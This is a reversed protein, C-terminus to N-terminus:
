IPGNPALGPLPVGVTQLVLLANLTLVVVAATTAAAMALSGSAYSGMVDRRRALILLAIMPVPLILSLAVQSLILARTAHIGLAVVIFSPVMTVLRRLWLPIRYGVFGQMIVQGAMTGVASSSLGSALLSVLFVGAVGSGLIPILTRYATDIQAVDDHVGDHFVSAAMAVMAMNVLGALGLALVVEGNSFRVLRRRERDTRPVIRDQTFGSHVYIAHPMVTAGIIGVALLVADSGDLRPVVSHFMVASWDPPAMLLEVLYSAGIIGVLGGIMLEIPRFGRRQLTLMAYTAIGTIVMGPLLPMGVLLSLGIAGGLFEALDTAMAGIESVVWMAWVLPRPFRERCLEALNRGTVIGLKASLAQFLMAIVNAVLVVWLLNYNYKAGAQINTAFNGPDMYAVSAMVAPGAFPLLSVVGRRRGALVERTALIARDSLTAGDLPVAQDASSGMM